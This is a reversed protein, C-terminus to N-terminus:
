RLAWTVALPQARGEGCGRDSILGALRGEGAHRRAAGSRAGPGGPPRKASEAAQQAVEKGREMVKRAPRRPRRRSRTPWRASGSTRSRRRRSSCGPGPFSPLRGSRWGSRTRRLWAPPASPARSSRRQRAHCRSIKSRMGDVKSSVAKTRGPVDAKHGLAEVTGGMRARTDEMDNRIERPDQGM